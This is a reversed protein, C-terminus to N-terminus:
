GNLYGGEATVLRSGRANARAIERSDVAIVIDGSGGNGRLLARDEPSLAVMMNTPAASVAVAYAPNRMQALQDFFGVGYQSVVNAPMVYEGRHVIGAPEYKGGRGTYGGSSYAVVGGLGKIESAFNAMFDATKIAGAYNKAAIQQLYLAKKGDYLGQLYKITAAVKDGNIETNVTVTAKSANAQAIFENLAQLAPNANAKVTINRPVKNIITSFDGFSKAFNDVEDASYGMATAQDIFDQNLQSAVESLKKQSTGNAALSTLYDANGQIIGLLERRNKRAATSNGKLSTSAEDTASSLESNANALQATLENIRMTDGAAVAISLFYELKDRTATLGLIRNRAETIRNSLNEWSDATADANLIAQWRIDFARKFVGSLDNAYDVLTRVQAAAGSAANGVDKFKKAMYEAGAGAGSTDITALVGGYGRILDIFESVPGISSSAQLAIKTFLDIKGAKFAADSLARIYLQGGNRGDKIIRRTFEDFNLGIENLNDSISKGSFPILEQSALERFKDSVILANKVWAVTNDGVYRTNNEIAANTTNYGGPVAVNLLDATSALQDQLKQIEPKVLATSQTLEADILAIAPDNPNKAFQTYPTEQIVVKGTGQTLPLDLGPDRGASREIATKKTHQTLLEQAAAIQEDTAPISGSTIQFAKALIQQLNPDKTLQQAKIQALELMSQNRDNNIALRNDGMMKYLALKQLHEPTNILTEQLRNMNGFLGGSKQADQTILQKQEPTLNPNRLANEASGYNFGQEGNDGTVPTPPIPEQMQEDMFRRLLNGKYQKLYNEENTANIDSDLTSMAKKGAAIQSNMQGKYGELAKQRYDFDNLKDQAHSAEWTKIIQDLPQSYQEKQNALYAKLLDEQSQANANSANMGQYLAGLAFEPTYGTTIPM